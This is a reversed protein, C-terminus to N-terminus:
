TGPPRASRRAASADEARQRASWQRPNEYFEGDDGQVVATLRKALDLLKVFTSRDPDTTYVNGESWDFWANTWRVAYPGHTPDSILDADEAVVALWEQPGIERGSTDAWDTSRTIHLDYGM